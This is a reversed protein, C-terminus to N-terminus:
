LIDQTKNEKEKLYNLYMDKDKLHNVDEITKDESQSIVEFNSLKKRIDNLLYIGRFLCGVVIGFALFGGVLPEFMLLLFGLITSLVISLVLYM